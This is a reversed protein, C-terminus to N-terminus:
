KSIAHLIADRTIKIMQKDESESICYPPMFYITHDIPRILLGKNLSFELVKEISIKSDLEFAWIM